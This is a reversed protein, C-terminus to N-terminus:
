VHNRLGKCGEFRCNPNSCSERVLHDDNRLIWDIIEDVRKSINRASLYLIGFCLTLGIICIPVSNTM